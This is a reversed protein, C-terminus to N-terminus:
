FIEIKFYGIRNATKSNYTTYLLNGVQLYNKIKKSTGGFIIGSVKGHNKLSYKPLLLIKMTDTKQYLFDLM